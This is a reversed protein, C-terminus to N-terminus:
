SSHRELYDIAQKLMPVSDKAHGLILNCSMCLLGRVRDSVHCHDVALRKGTQDHGRCVACRGDQSALLIDYQEPSLGFRANLSYARTRAIQKTRNRDRWRKMGARVKEPNRAKYKQMSRVRAAKREGETHYKRRQMNSEAVSM